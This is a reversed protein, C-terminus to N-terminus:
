LRARGIIARTLGGLTGGLAELRARPGRAAVLRAFSALAEELHVDYPYTWPRKIETPGLRSTDTVQSWTVALLGEPGHSRGFGSAGVGGWPLEPQAYHTAGLENIAVNGARLAGAMRRSATLDRGFISATLGFDTDNHTAIAHADDRCTTAALIPGFSEERWVAAAEVGAGTVLTPQLRESSVFHGGTLLTLGRARADALHRELVQRQPGFTIRGADEFPNIREMKAAIRDLLDDCVREDAILREVSACVQGHNFTAGWAITSAAYELDADARVIAADVGGLELSCPIPHAACAAMVRRGTALSGTFCVLDPRAAVLAAGVAGDGPVCQFLDSPLDCPALVRAIWAATDPTVESPKTVVANGAALAALAQSFPIFFPINWPAISLVVGFPRRAVECGRHPLWTLRRTASALVDPASRELWRLYAIAPLIEHGIAEVRPKGNEGHIQDALAEVHEALFDVAPRLAAVRERVSRRSWARQAERARGFIEGPAIAASPPSTVRSARPM